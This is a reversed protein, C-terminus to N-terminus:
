PMWPPLQVGSPKGNVQLMQVSTSPLTYDLAEAVEARPLTFQEYTETDMFHLDDGEGYLYQVQRMQLDPEEFKEGADIRRRTVAKPAQNTRESRDAHRHEHCRMVEVFGRVAVTDRHHVAAPEDCEATKHLQARREPM